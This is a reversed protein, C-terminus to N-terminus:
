CSNEQPQSQVMIRRIDAEQPVLIIFRLSPCALGISTKIRKFM